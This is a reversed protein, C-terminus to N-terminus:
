IRTVWLCQVLKRPCCYSSSTSNSAGQVRSDELPFTPGQALLAVRMVLTLPCYTSLDARMMLMTTVRTRGSNVSKSFNLKVVSEWSSDLRARSANLKELM